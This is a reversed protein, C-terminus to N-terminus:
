AELLTRIGDELRVINRAIKGHKEGFGENQLLLVIISNLFKM